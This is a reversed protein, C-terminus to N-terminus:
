AAASVRFESRRLALHGRETLGVQTRVYIVDRGHLVAGRGLYVGFCPIKM